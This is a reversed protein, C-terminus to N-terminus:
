GNTNSWVKKFKLVDDNSFNMQREPHWLQGYIKKEKNEASLVINNEDISIIDFPSNKFGYNCHTTITRVKNGNMFVQHEIGAYGKIPILEGAFYHQLIQFGRCVGIIPIKCNLGYEVLYKEVEDREPADGGKLHALTNGGTLLIGDIKFSRLIRITINLNNPILIPTVGVKEFFSYWNIDLSDRRENHPPFFDIRQTVIINM